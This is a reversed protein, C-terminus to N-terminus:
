PEPTRQGIEAIILEEPGAGEALERGKHVVFGKGIYNDKGVPGLQAAVIITPASMKSLDLVMGKLQKQEQDTRFSYQMIIISAKKDMAKEHSKVDLSTLGCLICANGWKTPFVNLEKGPTVIGQENKYLFLKDQTGLVEGRDDIVVATHTTKKLTSFLVMTGSVIAMQGRRAAVTMQSTLPNHVDVFPKRGAFWETFCLLDVDKELASHTIDSIRKINFDLEKSAQFQGIAVNM